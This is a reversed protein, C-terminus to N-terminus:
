YADKSVFLWVRGNKDVEWVPFSVAVTYLNKLEVYVVGGKQIAIPGSTAGASVSITESAHRPKSKIYDPYYVLSFGDSDVATSVWNIEALDGQTFVYPDVSTGSGTPSAASTYSAAITQGIGPALSFSIVGSSYDITYDINITKMVGGVWVTVATNPVIPLDPLSFTTTSGDGKGVEEYGVVRSAPLQGAVWANGGGSLPASTPYPKGDTDAAYFRDLAQEVQNIDEAQATAKSRSTTGTVAPIIIAALVALIALVVMMEVLTLGKHETFWRKM